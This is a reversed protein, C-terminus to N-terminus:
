VLEIFATKTSTSPVERPKQIRSRAVKPHCIKRWTCRLCFVPIFYTDTINYLLLLCAVVLYTNISINDRISTQGGAGLVFLTHTRKRVRLLIQIYGKERIPECCGYFVLLPREGFFRKRWERESYDEHWYTRTKFSTVRILQLETRASIITM